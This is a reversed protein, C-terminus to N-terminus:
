ISRSEFKLDVVKVVTVMSLAKEKRGGQSEFGYRPCMVVLSSKEKKAM